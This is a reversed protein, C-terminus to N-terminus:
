PRCSPPSRPASSCRAGVPQPAGPRTCPRPSPSASCRSAAAPSGASTFAASVGKQIDFLPTTVPAEVSLTYLSGGSVQAIVSTTAVVAQDLRLTAGNTDARTIIQSYSGGAALNGLSGAYFELPDVLAAGEVQNTKRSVPFLINRFNSTPVTTTTITGAAVASSFLSGGNAFTITTITQTTGNADFKGGNLSLTFPQAFLGNALTAAKLTVNTGVEISGTLSATTGLTLVVPSTSTLLLTGNNNLTGSYTGSASLALKYTAGANVTVSASASPLGSTLTGASVTTTGTYSSTGAITVNGAGSKTFSGAGALNAYISGSQATLSAATLSGTGYIDGSTLTVAGATTNYTGLNLAGGNLNLPSAGLANAVGVLLSGSTVSVGGSTSLASSLKVVGAKGQGGVTVPKNNATWPGSLNLTGGTAAELAYSASGASLTISGSFTSIGTTGTSALTATYAAAAGSGVTVAGSVTGTSVLTPADAAGTFEDGLRLAGAGSFLSLPGASITTVGSITNTGTIALAGTGTKTFGTGTVPGSLAVSANPVV